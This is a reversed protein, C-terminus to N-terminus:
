FYFLAIAKSKWPVSWLPVNPVTIVDDYDSASVSMEPVFKYVFRFDLDDVQRKQLRGLFM